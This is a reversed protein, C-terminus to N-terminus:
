CGTDSTFITKNASYICLYDTTGTITLGNLITSSTVNIDGVVNLKNQPTTTGIGVNGGGSQLILNNWAGFGGSLASLRTYTNGSAAGFQIALGSGSVGDVFDSTSFGAGITSGSTAAVHLKGWPATTGIGVRDTNSNVFLTSGDASFNKLFSVNGNVIFNDLITLNQRTVNLSTINYFYGTQAYINGDQITLGNNMWGGNFDYNGLVNDGGNFIYPHDSILKASIFSASLLVLVMILVYIFALKWEKKTFNEKLYTKLTM